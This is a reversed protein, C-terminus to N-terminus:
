TWTTGVSGIRIYDGGLLILILTRIGASVELATYKLNFVCSIPWMAANNGWQVQKMM